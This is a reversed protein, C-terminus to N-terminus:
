SLRASKKPPGDAGEEPEDQSEEPESTVEESLNRWELASIPQPRDDEAEGDKNAEFYELAKVFAQVAGRAGLVRIMQGVDDFEGGAGRMDVPVMVEADPLDEPHALQNVLAADLASDKILAKKLAELTRKCVYYIEPGSDAEASADPM